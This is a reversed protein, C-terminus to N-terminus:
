QKIFKGVSVNTVGTFRVFYVGSKLGSVDITTNHDIIEMQLIEQGQTNYIFLTGITPTEIVIITSAPNPYISFLIDPVIQELTTIGCSDKVEEKSNCGIANETIDIYGNPAALYDCVSQIECTSLSPNHEISLGFITTADINELATIDTLTENYDVALVGGLSTINQLGMLSALNANSFILLDSDILTISDLATLTTLSSNLSISLQNGIFINTLGTLSTLSINYNVDLGDGITSLNELGALSTLSFDWAIEFEGGISTLGELGTLNVLSNNGHIWFDEGISNLGVLGIPNVLEYNNLIYLDGEVTAVNHLGILSTLADNGIIVLNGGFITVNDLGVLNTLAHNYAIELNVLSYLSELGTLSILADNKVISLSEGIYNVNNLGTLTALDICEIIDLYEEISTLASLGNLNFIDSGSIKVFGGIETCNPYNIQFSDIQSQTTFTIGNPLCPQTSGTFSLILGLLLIFITKISGRKLLTSM